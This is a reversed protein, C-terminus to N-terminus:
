VMTSRLKNEYPDREDATRKEEEREKKEKEDPLRLVEYKRFLNDIPTWVRDMRGNIDCCRYCKICSFCLLWYLFVIVVFILCWPYYLFYLWLTYTIVNSFHPGVSGALSYHHVLEKCPDDKMQTLIIFRIETNVYNDDGGDTQLAVKIWDNPGMRRLSEEIHASKLISWKFASNEEKSVVEVFEIIENVSLVSRKKVPKSYDDSFDYYKVIFTSM